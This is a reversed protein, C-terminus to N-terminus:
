RSSGGPGIGPRPETTSTSRIAPRTTSYSRKPRQRSLLQDEVAAGTDGVDGDAPAWEISANYAPAPSLTWSWSDRSFALSGCSEVAADQQGCANKSNSSRM